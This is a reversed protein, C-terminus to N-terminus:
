RSFLRKQAALGSPKCDPCRHEWRGKVQTISWGDAKAQEIMQTFEGEEYSKDAPDGCEDCVLTMTGDRAERDIM